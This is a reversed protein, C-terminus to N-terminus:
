GRLPDLGLKRIMAVTALLPLGEIATFDESEIREFLAIGLSEVMYSGACDVPNDKAVYRAIEDATLKRMTLRTVDVHVDTKGRYSVALATILEHTRGAMRAIQARANETTGPKDVIAAGLACVQDSGLVVAEPRHKAVAEAKALALVRAVERPEGKKFPAEDVGPAETTFPLGLRALLQARYKSTSALILPATM